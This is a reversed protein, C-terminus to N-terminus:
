KIHCENCATPGAGMDSHCGKCLQHAITKDIAIKQPPMEEHCKACSLAEAHMPHDFTVNGNMAEYSLVAPAAVETAIAGTKKAGEQVASDLAARGEDVAEATKQQAQDVMAGTSQKVQETMEKVKEGATAAADKTAEVSKEAAAGIHEGAKKAEAVAEDAATTPTAQDAANQIQESEPASAKQQDESSCAVLATMCVLLVANRFLSNKM